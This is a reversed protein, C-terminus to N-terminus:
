FSLQDAKCNLGSTDWGMPYQSLHSQGLSSKMPSLRSLHLTTTSIISRTNVEAGDYILYIFILVRWTLIFTSLLHNRNISLWKLITSIMPVYWFLIVDLKILTLQFGKNADDCLNGNSRQEHDIAAFLRCGWVSIFKVRSLWAHNM